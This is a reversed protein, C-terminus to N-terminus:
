ENDAPQKVQWLSALAVALLLAAPLWQLLRVWPREYVQAPDSYALYSFFATGSLYIWPLAALWWRRDEGAAPPLFPVFALM